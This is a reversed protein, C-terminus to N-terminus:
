QDARNVLRKLYAVQEVLKPMPYPGDAATLGVFAENLRTKANEDLDPRNTLRRVRALTGQVDTMLTRVKVALDFQEQLDATTLGDATLRPDLVVELPQTQSQGGVTLRVAYRGPVAPPGGGERAGTSSADVTFDWRVRHM